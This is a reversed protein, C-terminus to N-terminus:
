WYFEQAPTRDEPWEDTGAGDEAIARREAGLLRVTAALDFDLALVPDRIV